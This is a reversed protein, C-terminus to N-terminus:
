AADTRLERPTTPESRALIILAFVALAAALFTLRQATAMYTNTAPTAARTAM